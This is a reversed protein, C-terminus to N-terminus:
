VGRWWCPRKELFACRCGASCPTPKGNKKGSIQGHNDTVMIVARRRQTRQEKMFLMAADNIAAVIHTGGMRMATVGNVAMEAANLDDTFPLVVRSKSGFVMVSARDGNRLEALAAHASESLKKLKPIM